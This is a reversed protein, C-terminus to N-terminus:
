FSRSVGSPGAESPDTEPRDFSVHVDATHAGLRGLMERYWGVATTLRDEFGAAGWIITLTRTTSGDTKTRQADKVPNACPGQADHLCILGKLSMEQGSANFVYSDDPEGAMVRFPPRAKDLDVLAIPFGSHLSVVNCIDVAANILGLEGRDVARVLYESAPKGRGAPKHGWHRLMDRVTLRVAEDRQLPTPAELALLEFVWSPTEMEGLPAPFATTFPGPRLIPHHAVEISITETTMSSLHHPGSPFGVPRAVMEQADEDFHAYVRGLIRPIFM